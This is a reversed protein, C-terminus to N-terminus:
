AQRRDTERYDQLRTTRLGIVGHTDVLRQWSVFEEVSLAYRDCAEELSLLGARVGAVVEAKRRMVWRKTSVPPLDAISIPQGEPGLVRHIQYGIAQTHAEETLPAIRQTVQTVYWDLNLFGSILLTFLPKLAAM